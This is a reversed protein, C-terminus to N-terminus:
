IWFGSATGTAEVGILAAASLSAYFGRAEGNSHELKREATEGSETDVWAVQQWAPHFDCGAIIM